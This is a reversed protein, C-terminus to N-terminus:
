QPKVLVLTLVPVGPVFEANFFPIVRVNEPLVTGKGYLWHGWKEMPSIMNMDSSADVVRRLSETLWERLKLLILGDDMFANAAEISAETIVYIQGRGLDANFIDYTRCSFQKPEESNHFQGYVLGFFKLTKLGQYTRYVDTLAKNPFAKPGNYEALKNVERKVDIDVSAIRNLPIIPM